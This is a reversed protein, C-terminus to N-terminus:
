SAKGYMKRISTLRDQERGGRVRRSGLGCRGHTVIRCSFLNRDTWLLAKKEANGRDCM